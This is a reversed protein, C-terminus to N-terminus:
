TPDSGVCAPKPWIRDANPRIPSTAVFKHFTEALHPSSEAVNKVSSGACAREGGQSAEQQRQLLKQRRVEHERRPPLRRQLLHRLEDGRASRELDELEAAQRLHRSPTRVAPQSQTVGAGVGDKLICARQSAAFLRM